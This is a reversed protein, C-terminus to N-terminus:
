LFFGFSKEPPVITDILSNWSISFDSVHNSYHRLEYMSYITPEYLAFFAKYEKLGSTIV